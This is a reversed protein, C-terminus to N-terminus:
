LPEPSLARALDLGFQGRATATTQLRGILHDDTRETLVEASGTYAAEFGAERAARAERPGAKGYPYALTRADGRPRLADRLADDDLRTLVDHRLTHFGIEWGAARLAAIGAESLPPAPPATVLALRAALADLERPDLEEIARALARIAGPRHELAATTLGEDVPALMHPRAVGSDVARQLLQWWPPRSTSCLFATATVGHRSLVPLAHTRHSELDDDFTLAVPLREGPVRARAAAPLEAAIVPRYHRALHEVVAELHATGTDPDIEYAVDGPVPGVAHFVLAAGRIAPSRRAQARLRRALVERVRELTAEPIQDLVRSM